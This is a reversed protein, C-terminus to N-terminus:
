GGEKDKLQGLNYFATRRIEANKHTLLPKLENKYNYDTATIVYFCFDLLKPSTNTKLRKAILTVWDNAQEKAYWYIAKVAVLSKEDDYTNKHLKWKISWEDSM